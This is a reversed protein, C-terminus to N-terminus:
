LLRSLLRRKLRALPTGLRALPTGLLRAAISRDLLRAFDFALSRHDRFCAFPRALSRRGTWALTSGPLLRAAAASGARSFAILWSCCVVVVGGQSIALESAFDGARLIARAPFALLVNEAVWKHIERRRKAVSM